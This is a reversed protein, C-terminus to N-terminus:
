GIASALQAAAAPMCGKIIHRLAWLMGVVQGVVVGKGLNAIRNFLGALGKDKGMGQMVCVNSVCVQHQHDWRARWCM